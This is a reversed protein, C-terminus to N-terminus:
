RADGGQRLGSALRAHLLELAPEPVPVPVGRHRAPRRPAGLGDGGPEAQVDTGAEPDPGQAERLDGGRLHKGGVVAQGPVQPCRPQTPTPRWASRRGEEKWAWTSAGRGTWPEPLWTDWRHAGPKERSGPGVPVPALIQVCIEKTGTHHAKLLVICAAERFMKLTYKGM